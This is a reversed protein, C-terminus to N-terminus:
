CDKGLEKACDAEFDEIRKILEDRQEQIELIIKETALHVDTRVDMCYEALQDVGGNAQFSKLDLIKTRNVDM